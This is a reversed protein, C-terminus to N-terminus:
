CAMTRGCGFNARGDLVLTYGHMHQSMGDGHIQKLLSDITGNNRQPETMFRDFRRLLVNTLTWALGYQCLRTLRTWSPPMTSVIPTTNTPHRPEISEAFPLTGLSSSKSAISPITRLIPCFTPSVPKRISIM